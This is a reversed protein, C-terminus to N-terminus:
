EEGEFCKSTDWPMVTRKSARTRYSVPSDTDTSDQERRRKSTGVSQTLGVSRGELTVEVESRPEDKDAVPTDFVKIMRQLETSM